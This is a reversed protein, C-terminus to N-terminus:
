GRYCYVWSLLWLYAKWRRSRTPKHLPMWRASLCSWRECLWRRHHVQRPCSYCFTRGWHAMESYTAELRQKVVLSLTFGNIYTFMKMCNIRMCIFSMKVLFTKCKAENQFHSHLQFESIASQKWHYQLEEGLFFFCICVCVRANIDM